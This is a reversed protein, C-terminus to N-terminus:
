FHVVSSGALLLAAFGAEFVVGGINKTERHGRDLVISVVRGAAAGAWFVGAMFYAWANNTV